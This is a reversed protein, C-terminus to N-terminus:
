AAGQHPTTVPVEVHEPMSIIGEGKCSECQVPKRFFGRFLRGKGECISCIHVPTHIISTHEHSKM